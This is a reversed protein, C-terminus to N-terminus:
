VPALDTGVPGIVRLRCRHVVLVVVLVLLSPLVLGVAEADVGIEEKGLAARGGALGLLDTAPQM